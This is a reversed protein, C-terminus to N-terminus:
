MRSQNPQLMWRRSRSLLMQLGFAIFLVDSWLAQWAPGTASQGAKFCGCDIDLGRQITSALAIVFVLLMINVWIVSGRYFIGLILGLGCLLELWPLILAMLNILSGPVMHYFWIAKAFTAPEIIKYFSAYIFVLGIFLRSIMTLYDNDILQRM